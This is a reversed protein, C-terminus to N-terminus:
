GMYIKDWTMNLIAIKRDESHNWQIQFGEKELASVIKEGIEIASIEEAYNGFSLLLKNTDGDLLHQLDQEIYFCCGIPTIGKQLLYQAIENTDEFGDSITYGSNHLTVIKQENLNQFAKDLRKFNIQETNKEIKLDISHIKELIWEPTVKIGRYFDDIFELANELIEDDSYFGAKKQFNLLPILDEIWMTDDM